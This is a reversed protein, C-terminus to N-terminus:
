PSCPYIYKQVKYQCCESVYCIQITDIHKGKGSVKSIIRHKHMNQFAPFTIQTYVMQKIWHWYIFVLSKMCYPNLLPFCLLSRKSLFSSQNLLSEWYINILAPVSCDKVKGVNGVGKQSRSPKSCAYSHITKQQFCTHIM